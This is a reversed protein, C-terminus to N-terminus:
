GLFMRWMLRGPMFTFLGAILLGLGLFGATFYLFCGKRVDARLDQTQSRYQALLEDADVAAPRNAPAAETPAAPSIPAAPPAPAANREGRASAIERELWALHERVLDRQRQLEDLRDPM